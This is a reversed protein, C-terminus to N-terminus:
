KDDPKTEDQAANEVASGEWDILPKVFISVHGNNLMDIKM